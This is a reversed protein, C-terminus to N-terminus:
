NTALLIQGTNTVVGIRDGDGDFAIGADAKTEKIKEVLVALNEPVTPDAEHNPFTGDPECFLPIVACGLGEFM